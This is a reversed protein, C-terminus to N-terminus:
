ASSRASISASGFSTRVASGGHAGSQSAHPTVPDGDDWAVPDAALDRGGRELHQLRRAAGVAEREVQGLVRPAAVVEDLGAPHHRGVPELRQARRVRDQEARDAPGVHGVVDRQPAQQDRDPPREPLVHVQPRDRSHGPIGEGRRSTSGASTSMTITRSFVSPSYESIPPRSLWPM